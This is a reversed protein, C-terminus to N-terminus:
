CYLSAKFELVMESLEDVISHWEQCPALSLFLTRLAKCYIKVTYTSPSVDGKQDGGGGWAFHGQMM